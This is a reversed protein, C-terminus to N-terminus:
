SHGRLTMENSGRSICMAITSIIIRSLVETKRDAESLKPAAIQKDTKQIDADIVTERYV